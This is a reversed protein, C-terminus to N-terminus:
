LEALGSPGQKKARLKGSRTAWYKQHDLAVDTIVSLRPEVCNTADLRGGMGVELVVIDPRIGGFIRVGDSDVNRLFKSAV